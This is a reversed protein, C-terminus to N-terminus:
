RCRLNGFDDIIMTTHVCERDNKIYQELWYFGLCGAQYLHTAGIYINRGDFFYKGQSEMAETATKAAIM